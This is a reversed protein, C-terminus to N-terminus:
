LPVKGFMSARKYSNTLRSCAGIPGADRQRPVTSVAEAMSVSLSLSLFLSLTSDISLQSTREPYSFRQTEDKGAQRKQTQRELATLCLFPFFSCRVCYSKTAMTTSPSQRRCFGKTRGGAAGRIRHSCTGRTFVNVEQEQATRGGKRGRTTMQEEEAHSATPTTAQM